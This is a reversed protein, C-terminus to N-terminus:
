VKGPLQAVFYVTVSIIFFSPMGIILALGLVIWAQSNKAALAAADNGTQRAYNALTSFLLIVVILLFVLIIKANANENMRM